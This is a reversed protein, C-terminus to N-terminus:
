KDKVTMVKFIKIKSVLSVFLIYKKTCKKSTKRNLAFMM